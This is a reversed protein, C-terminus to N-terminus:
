DRDVCVRVWSRLTGRFRDLLVAPGDASSRRRPVLATRSMAHTRRSSAWLLLGVSITIAALLWGAVRVDEDYGDIVLDDVDNPDYHATVIDGPKASPGRDVSRTGGFEAFPGDLIVISIQDPGHDNGQFDVVRARAETGDKILERRHDVKTRHAVSDNVGTVITIIALSAVIMVRMRAGM